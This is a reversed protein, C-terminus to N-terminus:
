RAFCDHYESDTLGAGNKAVVHASVKNAQSLAEAWSCGNARSAMIQGIHSDGAGITDAVTTKIGDVETLNDKGAELCCSGDKGKTIIVTNSTANQLIKAADLLSVASFEDEKCKFDSVTLSSLEFAEEDNIHLIPNLNYLRKM